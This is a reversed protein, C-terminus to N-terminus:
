VLTEVSMSEVLLEVRRIRLLATTPGGVGRYMLPWAWAASIQDPGAIIISPYEPPDGVTGFRESAVPLVDEGARDVDMTQRCRRVRQARASKALQDLKQSAGRRRM